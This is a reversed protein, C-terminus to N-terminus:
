TPTRPPPPSPSWADSGAAFASHTRTTAPSHQQAGGREGCVAWPTDSDRVGRNCWMQDAGPLSPMAQVCGPEDSARLGDVHM